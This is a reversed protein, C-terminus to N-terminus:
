SAPTQKFIAMRRADRRKIFVLAISLAVWYLCYGTISGITAINSWGLIANFVSWGGGNPSCCTMAWVNNSVKYPIAPGEDGGAVGVARLWFHTELALIGKAFLGAAILFLLMTSLLFFIHLRARIGGRYILYGVGAGCLIGLISPIPIASPADTITVGGLFVMAELGERLITVFPITLLIYKTAMSTHKFSAEPTTSSLYEDDYAENRDDKKDALDVATVQDVDGVSSEPAPVGQDDVTENSPLPSHRSQTGSEDGNHAKNLRASLKRRWQEQREPRISRLMPVSMITILAAGILSFSGEWALEHNEYINSSYLYWVVIFVAGIIVALLLGLGTGLWIQRRLRKHLHPDDLFMQRCFSLLVSVVISAEVTERFLIFFAPISFLSPM